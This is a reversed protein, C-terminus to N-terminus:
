FLEDNEELAQAKGTWAARETEALFKKHVVIQFVNQEFWERYLHYTGRTGVQDGWSNENKFKVVPGNPDPRDFGTLLMAHNPGSVGFFSALRRNLHALQAQEPLNYIPDRVFVNPHMVGTGHEVDKSVDAAFWVPQGGEISAVALQALRDVGVNLFRVNYRKQGAESPGIASNKQEYVGPKHASTAAVVVYDSAEFGAFDAAFRQPTFSTISAPTTKVLGKREA